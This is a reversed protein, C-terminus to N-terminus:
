LICSLLTLFIITVISVGYVAAMVKVVSEENKRPWFIVMMVAGLFIRIPRSIMNKIGKKLCPRSVRRKWICGSIGSTRNQM